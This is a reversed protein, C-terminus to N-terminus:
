RDVDAPERRTDADGDRVVKDNQSCTALPRGDPSLVLTTIPGAHGATPKVERGTDASWLRVTNGAGGTALTRGDPAFAVTQVHRFPGALARLERGTAADYLKVTGVDTDGDDASVALCRGDPS